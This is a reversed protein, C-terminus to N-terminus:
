ADIRRLISGLGDIKRKGIKGLWISNITPVKVQGVYRPWSPYKKYSKSHTESADVHERGPKLYVTAGNADGAGGVGRRVLSPMVHTHFRLSWNVGRVLTRDSFVEGWM